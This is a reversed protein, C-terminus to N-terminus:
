EDSSEKPDYHREVAQAASTIADLSTSVRATMSNTRHQNLQEALNRGVDRWVSLTSVVSDAVSGYGPTVQYAVAKATTKIASAAEEWNDLARMLASTASRGNNTTQYKVASAAEEIRTLTNNIHWAISGINRSDLERKAVTVLTEIRENMDSTYCSDAVSRLM